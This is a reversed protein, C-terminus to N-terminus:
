ALFIERHTIQVPEIDCLRSASYDFSERYSQIEQKIVAPDNSSEPKVTLEDALIDHIESKQYVRRKGVELYSIPQKNKKRFKTLQDVTNWLHDSKCSEEFTNKFHLKKTGTLRHNVLNRAISFEKRKVSCKSSIAERECKDRHKILERIESTLWPSVKSKVLRRKLPAYKDLIELVKNNIFSFKRDINRLLYDSVDSDSEFELSTYKCLELKVENWPVNKLFRYQLIKPPNNVKIKKRIVFGLKHDSGAHPFQGSTNYLHKKNVYIHDLMGGKLHTPGNLMQWWGYELAVALSFALAESIQVTINPTVEVTVKSRRSIL